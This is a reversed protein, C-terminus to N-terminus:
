KVGRFAGAERVLVGHLFAEEIREGCVVPLTCTPVGSAGACDTLKDAAEALRSLDDGGTAILIARHTSPLQVFFESRIVSDDCAGDNLNRLRSLILSPKGDTLMQGKLLERLKAESSVAFNAIIRSKVRHYIDAPPPNLLLIKKVVSLVKVDLVALIGDAKTAKAPIRASGFSIEVQLFWLDPDDRFFSPIKPVHYSDERYQPVKAEPAYPNIPQAAAQQTAAFRAEAQAARAEASEVRRLM